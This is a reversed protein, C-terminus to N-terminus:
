PHSEQLVDGARPGPTQDFVSEVRFRVAHCPWHAFRMTLRPPCGIIGWNEALAMRYRDIWERDLSQAPRIRVVKGKLQVSHHDIHALTAAIRGNDHLNSIVRVATAVPLFVTLETGGKEVRPGFGRMCEPVLRADRSGILLSVGSQVFSVLDASLPTAPM